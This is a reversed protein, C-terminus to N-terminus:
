DAKDDLDDHICSRWYLPSREVRETIVSMSGNGSRLRAVRVAIGDRVTHVLGKYLHGALRGHGGTTPARRRTSEFGARVKQFAKQGLLVSELCLLTLGLVLRKIPRSKGGSMARM